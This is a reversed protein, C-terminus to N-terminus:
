VTFLVLDLDGTRFQTSFWGPFSTWCFIFFLVATISIFNLPEETEILAAIACSKDFHFQFLSREIRDCQSHQDRIQKCCWHSNKKDDIEHISWILKLRNM